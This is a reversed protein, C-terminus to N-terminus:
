RFLRLYRHKPVPLRPSVLDGSREYEKPMADVIARDTAMNKHNGEEDTLVPDVKDKCNMNHKGHQNKGKNPPKGLGHRHTFLCGVLATSSADERAEKSTANANKM